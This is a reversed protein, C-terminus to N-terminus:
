FQESSQSTGLTQYEYRSLFVTVVTFLAGFGVVILWGIGEGLPAADDRCPSEGRKYVQCSGSFKANNSSVTISTAAPCDGAALGALSALTWLTLCVSSLMPSRSM